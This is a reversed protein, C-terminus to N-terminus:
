QPTPKPQPLPAVISAAESGDKAVVIVGSSAPQAQMTVVRNTGPLPATWLQTGGAQIKLRVSADYAQLANADVDVSSVQDRLGDPVTVQAVSQKQGSFVVTAGVVVSAILAAAILSEIISFGEEAYQLGALLRAPRVGARGPFPVSASDRGSAVGATMPEPV